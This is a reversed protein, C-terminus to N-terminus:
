HLSEWEQLLQRLSDIDGRQYADYAEAMFRNRLQCEEDNLASYPHLIETVSRYLKKLTRQRSVENVQQQTEQTM